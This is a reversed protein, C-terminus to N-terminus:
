NSFSSVVDSKSTSAVATVDQGCAPATIYGAGNNGTAAAAFLGAAVAGNAAEAVLEVNCYETYQGGGFSMSIVKINYAAAQQQCYDIGLMIDSSYGTGNENLVKVAIITANPAIAHIVRAMTTGHGDDDTANDDGNVFDYGSVVKGNFDVNGDDVGTDLLCVGIGEGSLNLESQAKDIGMLPLADSLAVAMQRDLYIKEAGSNLLESLSSKNIELVEFKKSKLSKGHVLKLKSFDFNKKTKVIVRVTENNNLLTMVDSEIEVIDDKNKKSVFRIFNGNEPAISYELFFSVEASANLVPINATVNETVNEEPIIITQNITDNEPLPLVVTENEPTTNDTVNEEPLIVTQNTTQNLTENEAPQEIQGTENNEITTNGTTNEYTTQNETQVTENVSPNEEVTSASGTENLQEYLYQIEPLAGADPPPTLSENVGAPPGSVVAPPAYISTNPPPEVETYLYISDIPPLPMSDGQGNPLEGPMTEFSENPLSDVNSYLYSVETSNQLPAIMASGNSITSNELLNLSINSSDLPMELLIFFFIFIALLNVYHRAQKVAM